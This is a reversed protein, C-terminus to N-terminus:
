IILANVLAVSKGFYNYRSLWPSDGKLLFINRFKQWRTPERGYIVPADSDSAVPEDPAAAENMGETGPAIEGEQGDASSPITDHIDMVEAQDNSILPTDPQGSLATEPEEARVSKAADDAPFSVPVFLCATHDRLSGNIFVKFLGDEEVLDLILGTMEEVRKQLKEANAHRSFAGMQIAYEGGALSVLGDVTLEAPFSSMAPQITITKNMPVSDPGYDCKSGSLPQSASAVAVTLLITLITRM